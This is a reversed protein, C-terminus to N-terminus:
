AVTSCDLSARLPQQRPISGPPHRLICRIGGAAPSATVICLEGAVACDTEKAKKTAIPAEPSLPERIILPNSANIGGFTAAVM